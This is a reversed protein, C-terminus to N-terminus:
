MSEGTHTRMHNRLTSNACFSKDCVSCSFPKEGTHTRMHTILASRLRFSTNCVSCSHPKEGTHTSAHRMLSIQYAFRKHCVSCSFPKEGTHTRMHQVLGFPVSFSKSCVSCSFPKEGTHTRTHTTMHGKKLFTQGCDSCMFPREGTHWRMHKKLDTQKSFAKDCHSCKWCTDDTHCRGDGKSHEEDTDPSHSMTDDSVSLPVLRSEAQSGGCHDGDGETTMHQSSSGSPPETGRNEESQRNESKVVVRIVPLEPGQLSEGEEEEKIHSPTPEHQEVRSSWEQQEPHLDEESVDSRNLGGQTKFVADLLQRQRANEEKTRSLEEEYEAITREFVVVIEEVAASLRENLLARLMEVKCM